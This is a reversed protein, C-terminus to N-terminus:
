KKIHITIIDHDTYYASDKEISVELSKMANNIYIHDIISGTDCTSEQIMQTFGIKEMASIFKDEKEYNINFDGMITTPREKDIWQQLQCFIENKKCGASLYVFVVDFSEKRLHIASFKESTFSNLVM